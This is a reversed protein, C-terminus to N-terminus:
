KGKEFFKWQEIRSFLSSIIRSVKRPSLCFYSHHWDHSWDHTPQGKKEPNLGSLSIQLGPVSFESKLCIKMLITLLQFIDLKNLMDNTILNRLCILFFELKWAYNFLNYTFICKKFIEIVKEVYETFHLPTVCLPFM